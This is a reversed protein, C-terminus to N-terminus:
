RTDGLQELLAAYPKLNDDRLNAKIFHGLYTFYRMKAKGTQDDFTRMYHQLVPMCTKIATTMKERQQVTEAANLTDVAKLFFYLEPYATAVTHPDITNEFTLGDRKAAEFLAPEGMLSGTECGNWFQDINKVFDRHKEIDDKNFHDGSLERNHYYFLKPEPIDGSGEDINGDISNDSNYFPCEVDIKKLRKAPDDLKYSIKKIDAFPIQTVQCLGKDTRIINFSIRGGDGFSSAQNTSFSITLNDQPYFVQQKMLPHICFLKPLSKEQYGSNFGSMCQVSIDGYEGGALSIGQIITNNRLIVDVATYFTSGTDAVALDSITMMVSQLITFILIKLCFKYM